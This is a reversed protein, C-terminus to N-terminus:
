ITYQWYEFMAKLALAQASNVEMSITLLSKERNKDM